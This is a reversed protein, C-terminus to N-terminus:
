YTVVEYYLVPFIWSISERISNIAGEVRGNLTVISYRSADISFAGIDLKGATNLFLVICGDKPRLESSAFLLANQPLVNNQFNIKMAFVGSGTRKERPRYDIRKVDLDISHQEISKVIYPFNELQEFSFMPVMQPMYKPTFYPNGGTGELLSSYQEEGREDTYMREEPLYQKIMPFLVEWNRQVIGNGPRRWKIMAPESIGLKICLEKATMDNDRLYREIAASIHSDVRM